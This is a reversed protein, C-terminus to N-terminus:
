PLWAYGLKVFLTRGSRTLSLEGDGRLEDSYGVYAVTQPNLKWSFLLQNSLRKTRADVPELYLVPNRTVDLYQSLLRVQTERNFQYVATLRTIGASFLQGGVVTLRESSRRLDLQLHRGPNLTMGAGLQFTDGPRVNDFDIDDGQYTEVYASFWAAPRFSAGVYLNTGDFRIGRYGRDRRAPAITFSSQWPGQYKWWAEWEQELIQGGSDRTEDYDGGLRMEDYARGGGRYVRELGAHLKRTGVQPMFGLDARFEPDLERWSAEAEWRQLQLDWSARLATGTFADVPQGHAVAIEEPYRTRSGYAELRLTQHADIRFLGDLGLLHSEYESGQRGTYLVGVTSGRENIDRRYRLLASLNDDDISELSSGESGPILINTISDQALLIGVANAGAKGSLKIGWSPDAIDRTHVVDLDTDFLDRGELFFPRKENYFLAFTQNVDLQQSDAEVQSFDPNITANLSLNPTVGWRASLGAESEESGNELPGDPFARRLDSRSATFTPDLEIDLRPEIGEIGTLEGLQCLLCNRAPDRPEIAIRHSSDRPWFRVANFGWVQPGTTRPYRLSSFPIAGEVEFGNPTIRGASDWIADWSPDDGGHLDDELTDAQIGVANTFFEFARRGDHFTDFIVGVSDDNYTRDRDSYRVRLDKPDPEDARFAFYVHDDDYAIWVRTDVPAPGNVSPRTEYPLPTGESANWVADDLRGDIKPPTEVRVARVTAPVYTAPDWAPREPAPQGALRGPAAALGLLLPLAALSSRSRLPRAPV